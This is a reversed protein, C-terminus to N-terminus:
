LPYELPTYDGTRFAWLSSLTKLISSREQGGTSSESESVHSHSGHQRRPADSAAGTILPTPPASLLPTTTDFPPLTIPLRDRFSIDSPAESMPLSGPEFAPSSLNEGLSDIHGTNISLPETASRMAQTEDAVGSIADQEVADEAPPAEIDEEHTSGQEEEDDEEDDARNSDEDSEDDFADRVNSFVQVKANTVAVPRARRSRANVLRKQRDREAEKSLKDFQRTSVRSGLIGSGQGPGLRGGSRGGLTGPRSEDQESASTRMPRKGKGMRSIENRQRKAHNHAAVIASPSHVVKEVFRSMRGPPEPRPLSSQDHISSNDSDFRRLAPIFPIRSANAAYSRESDSFIQPKSTNRPKSLSGETRGRLFRPRQQKSPEEESGSEGRGPMITSKQSRKRVSPSTSPQELSKEAESPTRQFRKM